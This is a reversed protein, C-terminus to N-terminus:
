HTCLRDMHVSAPVKFIEVRLTQQASAAKTNTRYGKIRHLFKAPRPTHWRILCLQVRSSPRRLHRGQVCTDLRQTVKHVCLLFGLACTRWWLESLIQSTLNNNLMEHHTRVETGRGVMLVISSRQTLSISCVNMHPPWFTRTSITSAPSSDATPAAEDDEAAENCATRCTRRVYIALYKLRGHHMVTDHRM